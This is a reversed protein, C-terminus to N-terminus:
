DLRLSHPEDFLTFDCHNKSVADHFFSSKLCEFHHTNKKHQEQQKEEVFHLSLAITRKM